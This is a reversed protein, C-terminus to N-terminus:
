QSAYPFLLPFPPCLSKALNPVKGKAGLTLANVSTSCLFLVFNQPKYSKNMIFEVLLMM